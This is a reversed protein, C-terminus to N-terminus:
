KERLLTRALKPDDTFFGDAGWETLRRMDEAQNVTWVHVRRGMAHIKEIESRSVDRLHPHLAQYDGSKFSVRRAFWGFLNPLTLLGRPTQPLLAAARALNEPLFSSFIVSEALAHRKVAKVVKDVLADKRTKYNTLEINILMKGGVAEFVEELTPIKQGGGADLKKLASLSLDAVAGKGRTTREVTPDHIVVPIGDASLKVDLEIADAKEKYALLFAALTNEPAHASAGRHAFIVPTPLTNLM